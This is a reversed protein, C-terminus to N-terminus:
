RSIQKNTQTTIEKSCNKSKKSDDPSISTDKWSLFLPFTYCYTALKCDIRIGPKLTFVYFEKIIIMMMM